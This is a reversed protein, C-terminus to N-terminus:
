GEFVKNLLYFKGMRLYYECLDEVYDQRSKIILSYGNSVCDRINKMNELIYYFDNSHDEEIYEYRERFCFDPSYKWRFVLM